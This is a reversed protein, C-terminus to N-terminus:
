FSPHDLNNQMMKWIPQVEQEKTSFFLLWCLLIPCEAFQLPRKYSIYTIGLEDLYTNASDHVILVNQYRKKIM